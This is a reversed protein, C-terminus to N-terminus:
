KRLEDKNAKGEIKENLKAYFNDQKYYTHDLIIIGMRASKDFENLDDLYKEIDACLL